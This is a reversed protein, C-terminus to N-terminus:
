KIMAVTMERKGRPGPPHHLAFGCERLVRKVSGKASYTTLIGGPAMATALKKFIGYNWCGPQVQPAFADFYVLDYIGKDLAVDEITDNIKRLFFGPQLETHVFFASSHMKRFILQLNDGEIMEAHNVQSVEEETLPFPEIADYWVRIDSNAAFELTLMCNLGTGFGVELIRVMDAGPAPLSQRDTDMETGPAPLPQRDTDMDTGPNAAPQRQDPLLFKGQVVPRLGHHIFVHRSEQIAGHISHYHENLAPLYITSSGDASQVIQRDSQNTSHTLYRAFLSFIIKHIM